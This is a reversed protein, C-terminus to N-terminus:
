EEYIDDGDVFAPGNMVLYTMGGSFEYPVGQPVVVTDGPEVEFAPEEGVQFSATGDLVYYVRTSRKTRLRRHRGSLEIWTVSIDPGHAAAAVLQHILVNDLPEIQVGVAERRIRM